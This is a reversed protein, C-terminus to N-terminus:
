SLLINGTESDMVVTAPGKVDIDVAKGNRLRVTDNYNDETHVTLLGLGQYITKGKDSYIHVGAKRFIERLVAPNTLPLGSYWSTHTGFERMAFAGYQTGQYSGLLRGESPTDVVPLPSIAAAIGYTEVPFGEGTVSVAPPVSLKLPSLTFGSINSSGSFGSDDRGVFGPLYVWVLHRGEAAVKAKIFDADKDNIYFSNAFIVTKYRNWPINRLDCQYYMDFVAGSKFMAASFEDTGPETIPDGSESPDLYYLSETDFLVAADSQRNLGGEMRSDALTKLKKIEELLVPHDWAGASYRPGFDYYWLGGGRQLPEL